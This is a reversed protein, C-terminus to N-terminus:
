KWKDIIKKEAVQNWCQAVAKMQDTTKPRVDCNAQPSPRMYLVLAAYPCCQFILDSRFFAVPSSFSTLILNHVLYLGRSTYVCM